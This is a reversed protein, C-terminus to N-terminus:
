STTGAAILALINCLRDVVKRTIPKLRALTNLYILLPRVGQGDGAGGDYISFANPRIRVKLFAGIKDVRLPTPHM